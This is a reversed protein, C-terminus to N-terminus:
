SARPAYCAGNVWTVRMPDERTAGQEPVELNIEIPDGARAVVVGSPGYLVADPEFRVTFGYPWILFVRRAGPAVIWIRDPDNASGELSGIPYADTVGCAANESTWTLL